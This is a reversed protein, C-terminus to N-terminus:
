QQRNETQLVRLYGGASVPSRTVMEDIPPRATASALDALVNLSLLM